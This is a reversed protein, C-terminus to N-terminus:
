YHAYKTRLYLEMNTIELSTLARTFIFAEAIQKNGQSGGLTKFLTLPTAVYGGGSAVATGETGNNVAIKNNTGDSVLRLTVFTDEAVLNGTIAFGSANVAGRISTLPGASTNGRQIQMNVPSGAGVFVGSNDTSSNSQKAVLFVTGGASLDPLNAVTGMTALKAYTSVAPLGNIAAVVLVPFVGSASLNHGNGSQDAWATVSTTGTVGADAKFWAWLDPM